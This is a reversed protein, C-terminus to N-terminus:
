RQVVNRLADTLMQQTFPKELFARVGLDRLAQVKGAGFNGSTVIVDLHPAVKTLEAVLEHGDMEPMHLDTIVARVENPQQSVIELAEKAADVAKVRFNLASLVAAATTRVGESDDIILILDGGGELEPGAQAPLSEESPLETDIPLYVAITSGHSPTSYARVFGFHSKVIGSVISLGLGTGKGRSKTSYFPEFIRDLVEQSM